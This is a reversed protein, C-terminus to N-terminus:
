TLDQSNISKNPNFNLPNKKYYFFEKMKTITNFSNYMLKKENFIKVLKNYTEKKIMPSTCNTFMIFQSNTEKAINSWFYSNLCKSTAYFPNRKFYNVGTDKAIQIARDSDTNIIIEDINKVKKLVEIKYILLNEKSFKKFNKNKVRESGKRVPVVATLFKEM